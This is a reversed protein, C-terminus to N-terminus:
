LKLIFNWEFFTHKTCKQVIFAYYYNIPFCGSGYWLPPSKIFPCKMIKEIKKQKTINWSGCVHPRIAM